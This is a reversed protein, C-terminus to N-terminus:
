AEGSMARKLATWRRRVAHDEVDPAGSWGMERASAMLAALRHLKTEMSTARREKILRGRVIAWRQIYRAAAQPSLPPRKADM